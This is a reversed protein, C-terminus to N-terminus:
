ALKISFEEKFLFFFFNVAIARKLERNQIGKLMFFIFFFCFRVMSDCFLLTVFVIYCVHSSTSKAEVILSVTGNCNSTANARFDSYESFDRQDTILCLRKGIMRDISIFFIISWNYKFYFILIVERVTLILGILYRLSCQLNREYM